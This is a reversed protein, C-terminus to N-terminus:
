SLRINTTEESGVNVTTTLLFTMSFNQLLANLLQVRLLYMFNSTKCLLYLSNLLYFLHIVFINM